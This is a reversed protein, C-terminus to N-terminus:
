NLALIASSSSYSLFLSAMGTLKLSMSRMAYVIGLKSAFNDSWKSGPGSLAYKADIISGKLSSLMPTLTGDIVGSAM